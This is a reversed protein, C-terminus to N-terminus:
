TSAIPQLAGSSGSPIPVSCVSSLLPSTDTGTDGLPPSSCLSGEVEEHGACPIGNGVLM